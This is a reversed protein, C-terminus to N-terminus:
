DFVEFAGKCGLPYDRVTNLVDVYYYPAASFPVQDVINTDTTPPAYYNISANQWSVAGNTWNLHHNPNSLPSPQCYATNVYHNYAFISNTFKNESAANPNWTFGEEFINGVVYVHDWASACTDYDCNTPGVRNSCDQTFQVRQNIWTNGAIVVHKSPRMWRSLIANYSEHEFLNHLIAINAFRGDDSGNPDDVADPFLFQVANGDVARNELLLRNEFCGWGTIQWFDGHCDGVTTQGVTTNGVLCYGNLSVDVVNEFECDRLLSVHHTCQNWGTFTSETIYLGAPFRVYVDPNIFSPTTDCDITTVGTDCVVDDIWLCGGTESGGYITDSITVGHVRIKQCSLDGVPMEEYDEGWYNNGDQFHIFVVDDASLGTDRTIEVWTDSTRTSYSSSPSGWQYSGAKCKVVDAGANIAKAVTQFPNASAGTGTSDSGNEDDVYYTVPSSAAGSDVAIWSQLVRSLGAAPTITARFEYVGDTWSTTNVNVCYEYYGTNVNTTPVTVSVPTSNEVSFAVSSIGNVSFAFVGFQRTTNYVNIFPPESFHAVPRIPTQESEMCGYSPPNTSWGSGPSSITPTQAIVLAAFILSFATSLFVRM